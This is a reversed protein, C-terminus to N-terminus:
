DYKSLYDKLYLIEPIENPDVENYIALFYSVWDWLYIMGFTQELVSEAFLDVFVNAIGKHDFIQQLADFRISVREHEEINDRLMIVYHNDINKNPYVWSNIENHNMEPITNRFALHKANEQIQQQIRRSVAEMIGSEAYLIVTKKCIERALEIVSNEDEPEPNIVSEKFDAFGNAIESLVDYTIHDKLIFGSNQLMFLLAVAPFYFACRPQYGSPLSILPYGNNNAFDTLKGGASICVINKTLEKVKNAATITEETNGSYSSLIVLTRESVYKPLTYHRNVEFPAKKTCLYGSNYLAGIIEGAIASGGMGCLLINDINDIDYEIKIDKYEDIAKKFDFPTNTLVSFMDSKDIENIKQKLQEDM